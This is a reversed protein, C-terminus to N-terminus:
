VRLLIPKPDPIRSGPDPFFRNRIGSGPTLFAGSGPDPDAVSGPNKQSSNGKIKASCKVCETCHVHCLFTCLHCCQGVWFLIFHTLGRGGRERWYTTEREWDEQTDVTSSVSSFLPLHSPPLVNNRIRIRDPWHIRIRIRFGSGPPCFNVM